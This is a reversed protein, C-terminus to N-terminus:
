GLRPTLSAKTNTDRRPLPLYPPLPSLLCCHVQAVRDVLIPQVLVDVAVADLHMSGSCLSRM